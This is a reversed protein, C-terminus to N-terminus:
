ADEQMRDWMAQLTVGLADAILKANTFTPDKSRGKVLERITTERVGSLRAVEAVSMEREELLEALVAGFTM